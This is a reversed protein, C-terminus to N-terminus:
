EGIQLLISLHDYHYVSHLVPLLNLHDITNSEKQYMCLVTNLRICIQLMKQQQRQQQEEEEELSSRACVCSSVTM